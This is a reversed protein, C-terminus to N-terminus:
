HTRHESHILFPSAVTLIYHFECQCTPASGSWTGNNQCARFIVGVRTYGNDCTYTAITDVPRNDTLGDTYTIGGNMQPPLDSCTGSMFMYIYIFQVYEIGSVSVLQIQGVGCEMVGVLGPAAEMSLITVLAATLPQLEWQDTTLPDVLM